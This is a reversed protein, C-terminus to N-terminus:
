ITKDVTVYFFDLKSLDQLHLFIRICFDRLVSKIQYMVLLIYAIRIYDLLFYLKFHFATICLHAEIAVPFQTKYVRVRQPMIPTSFWLKLKVVVRKLFPVQFKAYDKGVCM